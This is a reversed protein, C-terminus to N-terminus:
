AGRFNGNSVLARRYAGLSRLGKYSMSVNLRKSFNLTFIADVVQGQQLGTKYTIETTPTPVEYYKIDEIELYSVQKARFGLDPFRHLNSFSYGLNNFTQGQNHFPLLEFNDKRLYNFAYEKKISLTTDIFATDRKHSFIKYDTYNTKGSLIVKTSGNNSLTDIKGDVGITINERNVNGGLKRQAYTAHITFILFLFLFIIKPNM